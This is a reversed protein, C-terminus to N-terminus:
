IKKIQLGKSIVKKEIMAMIADVVIALLSVTLAGSILM